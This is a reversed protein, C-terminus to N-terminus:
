AADCAHRLCADCCFIVSAYLLMEDMGLLLCGIVKSVGSVVLYSCGM